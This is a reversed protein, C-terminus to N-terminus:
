IPDGLKAFRNGNTGSGARDSGQVRSGPQGNKKEKERRAWSRITALHNKYRAGKSAIYESLRAIRQEWDPFENKLKALDADSLLVNNYEGYKHKEVKDEDAPPPPPPTAPPIPADDGPVGEQEIETDIDVEVEVEKETDHGQQSIMSVDNVPSLLKRKGRSKQQALRNYERIAAMKDTSQYKEWSSIFIQHEDREIMGFKDFVSLAMRVLMLPKNFQTSLMEDTYPINETLYILGGDNVKGAMALLKFWIVLIADGEPMTEIQRIKRNDFIDTMIKIWKVEAM